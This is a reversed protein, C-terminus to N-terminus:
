QLNEIWGVEIFSDTYIDIQNKQYIKAASAMWTKAEDEEGAHYHMAANGFYYGPHDDLFNFTDLIEKASKLNEQKLNGILMKFRILARTAEPMKPNEALMKAFTANSLAFRGTVFHIETLNFESMFATPDLEVARKFSAEAKDFARLKTYAAGKLNHIPAYDEVIAEAQVLKEFAEQVRIGGLYTAADELLGGLKRRDEEPLNRVSEPIRSQPPIDLAVEPSPAKGGGAPVAAAAESTADDLLKVREDEAEAAGNDLKLTPEDAKPADQALMSGTLALSLLPATLRKVKM